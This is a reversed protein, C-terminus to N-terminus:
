LIMDNDIEICPIHAIKSWDERDRQCSQKLLPCKRICLYSLPTLGEEPLCQLKRCHSIELKELATLQQLGKDLSTLNPLGCISLSTLSTPLLGEEPFCQVDARKGGMISLCRLSVLNKLKWHVRQTILKNCDWLYLSNLNSPLGGDPFLELEPCGSIELYQLSLLKDMLEPLSRLNVCDTVKFQTLNPTPLGRDPFSVLSPCDWIELFSLALLEHDPEGSFSLSKLGKCSRIKLNNLNPFRELPFSELSDCSSWIALSELSAYYHNVPIKLKGCNEIELAKLTAPLGDKPFSVLSSCDSIFLEQLCPNTEKVHGPISELVHCGEIRLWHLESPLEKLQLGDCYGFKLDRISPARPLSAVLQQCKFIWLTTLSPLYDPLGGTLKPCRQLYLEQLCPFAGGVNDGGFCSWEQWEFMDELKLIELSKFPKNVACDGYFEAGVKGVGDLGSICLKKLSPLQGLPPLFCCDKCDKLCLSVMNSFSHDGLWDPFRTGGFYEIKLEKLSVHPKLSELVNREYQSDDAHGAWKLVLEDLYKKAKMNAEVAYVDHTVNQLGSISLTGRLQQLERLEKINCGSNKGLVFDTLTQLNKMKSMQLPMEKLKTHSIDLHRLNVLRGMNTPLETLSFCCSLILTKLQYLTSVSEPLRQIATHSLDLHRLHKLNGVSEPLESLKYQSLSLVRLCRLRPLLDHTVKNSLHFRGYPAQFKLPLFTRLCKAEYLMKFKKFDDHATRSFSLHRTRRVLKDSVGDELRLCFEGSVYKALDNVLDHMVFLSQNTSSQQFLSRSILDHFYEEGVEEMRKKRKPQELLDAAMWLLVLENRGFEYDKPFISCYSFCQKLHSPLHDYSLRLAPLINHTEESSDWIESTLIKNWDDPDLRSRLLGGLIKAALALGKCKKVIERGMEELVPQERSEVNNFAHKAFLLWCDEDSLQRLRHSPVTGMILAVNESRTTVVIKSGHIGSLFPKKLDDWDIYNENWVDDLVLLFKKAMLEDKLKVQLLNLDNIGCPALTITEFITKTIRLVDFEESVCVWAKLDFYGKVEDDNYVLQALTTKGIGGMGVIPIVCVKNGCVDIGDSLLLRVIVERDEDRGYVGSEEVLSTAPLRRVAVDKIGEKLGLVYKKNAIFELREVVEEIKPELWEDLANLLHLKIDKVQIGGSSGSESEEQLEKELAESSFDALLDEADYVAARLEDLWEKVASNTIQKDEADSLVSNVSLLTIELKRLLGANLKNGRIFDVVQRSALRDFLVQLSASLFAGGVVGAM